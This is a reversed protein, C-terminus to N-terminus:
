EIYFCMRLNDFIVKRVNKDFKGDTNVCTYEYGSEGEFRHLYYRKNDYPLIISTAIKGNDIVSFEDMKYSIGVGAAKLVSENLSFIATFDDCATVYEYEAVNFFRKSIRYNRDKKHEVDCGVECPSLACVVREGSHSLNFYLKSDVFAPKGNTAAQIKPIELDLEDPYADAVDRYAKDLLIGACLCRIKDKFPKIRDARERRDKSAMDYIAEYHQEDIQAIDLVYLRTIFDEEFM